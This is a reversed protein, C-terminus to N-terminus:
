EKEAHKHAEVEDRDMFVGFFFGALIWGDQGCAQGIVCIYHYLAVSM